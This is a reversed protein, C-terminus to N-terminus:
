KVECMIVSPAEKLYHLLISIKTPGSLIDSTVEDPKATGTAPKV